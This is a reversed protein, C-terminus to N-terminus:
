EGREYEEMVSIMRKELDDCWKELRGLNKEQAKLIIEKAKAPSQRKPNSSSLRKPAAIGDEMKWKRKINEYASPRPTDPPNEMSQEGLLLDWRIYIYSISKLGSSIDGWAMNFHKIQEKEFVAKIKDQALLPLEIANQILVTREKKKLDNISLRYLESLRRKEEEQINHCVSSCLDRIHNMQSM